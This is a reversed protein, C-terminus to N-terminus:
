IMMTVKARKQRENRGHYHLRSTKKREKQNWGFHDDIEGESVETVHRSDNAEKDAKRRNGHHAVKPEDRGELDLEEDIVGNKQNLKWAELSASPVHTYTSGPKIPMHTLYKPKGPATARLLPGMVVDCFKEYGFEKMWSMASSIERCDAAGGAVNVFKSEEGKTVTSYNLKLYYLIESKRESIVGSSANGVLRLLRGHADSTMGLLSL